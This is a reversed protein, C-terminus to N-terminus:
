FINETNHRLKHLNIFRWCSLRTSLDTLEILVILGHARANHYFFNTKFWKLKRTRVFTSCDFLNSIYKLRKLVLILKAPKLFSENSETFVLLCVFIMFKTLNILLSRCKIRKKCKAFIVYILHLHLKLLCNIKCGFYLYANSFM